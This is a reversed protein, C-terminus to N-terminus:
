KNDNLEFSYKGSEISIITCDSTEEKVSVSKATALTQGGETIESARAPLYIKAKSGVPIIIDYIVKGNEKRWGSEILGYPSEVGAKAYTLKQVPQPHIVVTHYGPDENDPEIGALSKIFWSSIGAYSTHILASEPHSIEWTEPWATQGNELFYGYGPYTKRSLIDSIIEHFQPHAFLVHFYQYRTFSGINFYPHEGTLDNELHKLVSLQLSDPVIGVFLAFATRVQDGTLYSNIAPDFYKEHMKKRHTALKERYPNIEDSNRHLAESIRIFFDLTMAYVCNNSFLAQPYEGTEFVPGPRVWEGLFYGGAAYPTLLGDSVYKELFGLWKKGSEYVDDLIKKDGYALYHELAINMNAAGNLSSGAMRSIQPAVNNISGDPNQVDSWDRVNKMYYAGSAFCPLGLGWTTQYAGEPGYGLRERNPCDVTVGETNCMEYTWRDVEYIRNFMEDSCEFYGTRPAASSVAYGTIDALEARKLGKFYVYRGAFFNFRNRFREGNEGRAIYYQRQKHEEFFEPRNSIQIILTDGSKLGDFSADIYGTFSKGMDVWIGSVTDKVQKAPITEIIRSPDTMQASLIIDGGKKLPDTKAANTWGSDDFDVSNWDMSYRRGDVEEGGMDMFQFYGSNSSYSEACKWSEDSHLSFSKGNKTKGDLQILVAQDVLPAFFNNRSWGPGYWLAIINDGKRLLSTIDYTVYLIRKDIRSLAPALVFNDVKQGNVYLEHYGNTAIYAFASSAKSDINLTKRFWIHKEPSAAPHKIWDGKWDTRNLLGMSFRAVASTTSNAEEMATLAIVNAEQISLEASNTEEDTPLATYVIVKWYYDAGSQLKQGCYPVLHSQESSVIESDWVDAKNNKLNDPTSAVLIRYATQHLGRTHNPDSIKWSFRPTETDIGLPNTLYECQLGYINITSKSGCAVFLVILSFCISIIKNMM